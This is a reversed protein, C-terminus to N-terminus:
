AAGRFVKRIQRQLRKKLERATRWIGGKNAHPFDVDPVSADLFRSISNWHDGSEIDIILLDGPRGSFYDVVERNHQEFRAVFRAENGFPFPAGYIWELMPRPTTGFHGVVSDIWTKANRRTLIFKSGPYRVDLEQYLIPWPNDQFADFESVKAFAIDRIKADLDQEKLGVAGCVRYGLAELSRGM